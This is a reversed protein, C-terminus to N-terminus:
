RPDSQKSSMLWDAITWSPIKPKPLSCCFMSASFANSSAAALPKRGHLDGTERGGVEFQHRHSEPGTHLFIFSILGFATKRELAKSGDFSSNRAYVRESCSRDRRGVCSLFGTSAGSLDLGAGRRGGGTSIVSSLESSSIGSKECIKAPEFFSNSPIGFRRSACERPSLINTAFSFAFPTSSTLKQAPRMTYVRVRDGKCFFGRAVPRKPTESSSSSSSSSLSSTFESCRMADKDRLCPLCGAALSIVLGLLCVTAIHRRSSSSMSGLAFIIATM